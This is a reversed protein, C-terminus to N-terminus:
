FLPCYLVHMKITVFCKLLWKASARFPQHLCSPLIGGSSGAAAARPGRGARSRRLDLGGYRCVCPHASFRLGGAYFCGKQEGKRATEAAPCSGAPTKLGHATTILSCQNYATFTTIKLGKFSALNFFFIVLARLFMHYHCGLTHQEWNGPSLLLGAAGGRQHHSPIIRGCPSKRFKQSFHRNRGLVQQLGCFKGPSPALCVKGWASSCLFSLLLM